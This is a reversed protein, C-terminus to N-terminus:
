IPFVVKWSSPIEGHKAEEQVVERSISFGILATISTVPSPKSYKGLGGIDEEVSNCSGTAKDRKKTSTAKQSSEALCTSPQNRHGQAAPETELQANKQDRLKYYHQNNNHVGEDKWVFGIDDLLIKRDLRIKDNTHYNRQTCVWHGLSKDQEYKHPVQCHGNKRKFEVIKEYQQHWLKDKFKHADAKWTFGIEDLIIKRDLRMKNNNHINRQKRVWEGLSKDQEYKHPVLCHGNTRNFEVLQEYKVNWKKDYITM